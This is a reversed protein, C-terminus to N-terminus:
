INAKIQIEINELTDPKDPVYTTKIFPKVSLIKDIRENQNKLLLEVIRAISKPENSFEDVKYKSLDVNNWDYSPGLYM